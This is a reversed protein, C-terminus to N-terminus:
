NPHFVPRRFMTDYDLRVRHKEGRRLDYVDCEQYPRSYVHVTAAQGLSGLNEVEHIDVPGDLYQQGGEVPEGVREVVLPKESLERYNTFRLL